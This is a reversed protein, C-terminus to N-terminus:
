LLEVEEEQPAISPQKMSSFDLPKYIEDSKLELNSVNDEIQMPEEITFNDEKIDEIEQKEKVPEEERTKEMVPQAVEAVEPQEEAIPLPAVEEQEDNTSEELESFMEQEKEEKKYSIIGIVIAILLLAVGITILVGPFEIFMKISM